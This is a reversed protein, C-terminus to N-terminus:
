QPGPYQLLVILAHVRRAEGFNKINAITSQQNWFVVNSRSLILPMVKFFFFFLFVFSGGSM